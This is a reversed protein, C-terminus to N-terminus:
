PDIIRNASLIASSFFCFIYLKGGCACRLLCWVTFIVALDGHRRDTQWRPPVHAPPPNDNASVVSSSSPPAQQQCSSWAAFPLLSMYWFVTFLACRPWQPWTNRKRKKWQQMESEICSTCARYMCNIVTSWLGFVSFHGFYCFLSELSACLCVLDNCVSM